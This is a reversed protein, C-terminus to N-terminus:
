SAWVHSMFNCQVSLVERQADSINGSKAKVDGLKQNLTQDKLTTWYVRNLMTKRIYQKWSIPREIKVDFCFRVTKEEKLESLRLM